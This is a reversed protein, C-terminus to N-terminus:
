GKCPLQQALVSAGFSVLIAQSGANRIPLAGVMASRAVSQRSAAHIAAADGSSDLHRVFRTWFSALRRKPTSIV